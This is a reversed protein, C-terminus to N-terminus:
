AELIMLLTRLRGGGFRDHHGRKEALLRCASSLLSSAM